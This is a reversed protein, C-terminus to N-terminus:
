RGIQVPIISSVATSIFTQRSPIGVVRCAVTSLSARRRQECVITSPKTNFLTRRRRIVIAVILNAIERARFM